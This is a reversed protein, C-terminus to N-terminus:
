FRLTAGLMPGHQLVDYEYRRNGSDETYDVSLARYGVYGDIALRELARLEFHYTGIVQWSFDSGVGFGGIDGRLMFVKGLGVNQYVRAGIFPDIWDVSGSRAVVRGDSLVPLDPLDVNVDADARINVDQYWYRGGALIEVLTPGAAWKNLSLLGYSGGLEITAQEYDAQVNGSLTARGGPGSREFADSGALKAYVIDNFLSFRGSRLEAHSMWVPLTSWDLSEVIEIPTASVDFSRGRVTSEGSLWTLWAYTTFDLTWAGAASAPEAPEDKLGGREAALSPAPSAVVATILIALIAVGRSCSTM